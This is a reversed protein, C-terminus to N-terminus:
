FLLEICGLVIILLASILNCYKGFIKSFCKRGFYMGCVFFIMGIFFTLLTAIFPNIGSISASIGIGLNNLSLAISLYVCEKTDITHSSDSDALEPNDLIDKYVHVDNTKRIENKESAEKRFVPILFWIGLCILLLAGIINSVSESIISSIFYGLIMALFTGLATIASIITLNKFGVKIKNCGYVVGVALSDLSAAFALLFASFFGM